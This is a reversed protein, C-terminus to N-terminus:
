KPGANVSCASPFGVHVGQGANGASERYVELRGCLMSEMTAGEFRVVFVDLTMCLNNVWETFPHNLGDSGLMLIRRWAM